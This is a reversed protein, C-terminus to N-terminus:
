FNLLKYYNLKQYKNIIQYENDYKFEAIQPDGRNEPPHGRGLRWNLEWGPPSKGQNQTQEVWQFCWTEIKISDTAEQNQNIGKWVYLINKLSKSQLPNAHQAENKM